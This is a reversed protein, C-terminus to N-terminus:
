LFDGTTRYVNPKKFDNTKEPKRPTGKGSAAHDSEFRKRETREIQVIRGDHVVIQVMGYELGNISQIIRHTWIEDVDLPKAM